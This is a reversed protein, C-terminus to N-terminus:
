FDCLTIFAMIFIILISTSPNFRACSPLSYGLRSAAISHLGRRLGHTSLPLDALESPAFSCNRCLSQLSSLLQKRVCM